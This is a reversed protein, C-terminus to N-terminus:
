SDEKDSAETDSDVGLEEKMKKCEDYLICNDNYLRKNDHWVADFAKRQGEIEKKLMTNKGIEVSLRTELSLIQKQLEKIQAKYSENAEREIRKFILHIM